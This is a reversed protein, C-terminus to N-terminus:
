WRVPGRSVGNAAPSRPADAAQTTPVSAQAVSRQTWGGCVRFGRSPLWPRGEPLLSALPLSVASAIVRQRPERLPWPMWATTRPVSGALANLGSKCYELM